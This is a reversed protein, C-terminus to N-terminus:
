LKIHPFKLKLLLRTVEENEKTLDFKRFYPQFRLIEPYVGPYEAKIQRVKEGSIITKWEELHPLAKLWTQIEAQTKDDLYSIRRIDGEPYVEFVGTALFGDRIHPWISSNVVERAEDLTM